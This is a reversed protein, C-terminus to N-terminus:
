STARRGTQPLAKRIARTAELGNMEPMSLDLLVVNPRLKEALEVAQRGNSAEGCVQWGEHQELMHRLGRRIMDHDDAIIIRVM